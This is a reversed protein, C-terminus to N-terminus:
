AGGRGPNPSPPPHPGGAALRAANGWNWEIVAHRRREELWEDFLLHEVARRTAADLDAPHHALVRVVAFGDGAFVPGVVDGPSAAFVAAALVAPMERRRVRVLLPRAEDGRGGAALFRHQATEFFDRGGARIQEAVCHAEAEDAFDIRAIGAADFDARHAAWYPAVRAATVRRRLAAVTADDRVYAELQEHSMGRRAMWRLTEEATYLGRARRFGDMAEQLEDDTLQFLGKALAEQILCVNVLRDVIRRDDWVFDLCGIAQGVELVQQNVRLLDRESWRRAGRLPWPLVRDPCYSISVTGEGPRRLLADYHVAGDYPEEEWVLDIRTHPYWKRIAQLRAQAEGPRAADRVLAILEDLTAAVAQHVSDTM